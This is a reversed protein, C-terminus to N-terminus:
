LLSDFLASTVSGFHHDTIIHRVVTAIIITIFFSVFTGIMIYESRHSDNDDKLDNFRFATKLAMVAAIATYQGSLFFLYIMTRETYGIWKGAQNSPFNDSVDTGPDIQQLRSAVLHNNRRSERLVKDVQAVTIM